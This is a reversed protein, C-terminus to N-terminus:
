EEEEMKSQESSNYEITDDLAVLLTKIDDIVAGVCDYPKPSELWQNLLRKVEELGKELGIQGTPYLVSLAGCEGYLACEEGLVCDDCCQPQDRQM